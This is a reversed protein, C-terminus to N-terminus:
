GIDKLAALGPHLPRHGAEGHKELLVRTRAACESIDSCRILPPLELAIAESVVDGLVLAGDYYWGLDLDGSGANGGDHAADGRGNPVYTLQPDCDVILVMPECCRECSRPASVQISARVRLLDAQRVIHMTVSVASPAAGLALEVAGAAWPDDM